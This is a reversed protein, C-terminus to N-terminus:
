KNTPVSEETEVVEEEYTLIEFVSEFWEVETHSLLREFDDKNQWGSDVSAQIAATGSEVDEMYLLLIEGTKFLVRGVTENELESLSSLHRYTTVADAYLKRKVYMDGSLELAAADDPVATLRKDLWFLAEEYNELSAEIYAIEFIVSDEDPYLDVFKKFRKLADEPKQEESLILASNYLSNRSGDFDALIINYLDLASDNDGLLHYVWAKTELVTRNKPDSDLLIDLQRLSEDYQKLLIHVRALNFGASLLDPNLRRAIIYANVADSNRGLETYANGLNYWVEAVEEAPVRGTACSTFSAAATLILVAAIIRFRNM